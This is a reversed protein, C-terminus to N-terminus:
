APSCSTTGPRPAATSTLTGTSGASSGGLDCLWTYFQTGPTGTVHVGFHNFTGIATHASWAGASDSAEYRIRVGTHGDPFTMGTAPKASGCPNGPWTYSIQSTSVDEIEVEFGECEHDTGNSVDFNTAYGLITPPSATALMAVFIAIM